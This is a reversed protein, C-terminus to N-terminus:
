FTLLAFGWPGLRLVGDDRVPRMVPPLFGPEASATAGDVSGDLVMAVTLNTANSVHFLQSHESKSVLLLKRVGGVVMGLAYSAAAGPGTLDTSHLQKTGTGLSSLMQVAHYKANPQGTTWDLM